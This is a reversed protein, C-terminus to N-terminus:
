LCTKSYDIHKDIKKESEGYLTIKQRYRIIQFSRLGTNKERHEKCIYKAWLKLKSKKGAVRSLYKKTLANLWLFNKYGPRLVSGQYGFDMIDKESGDSFQAPISYWQNHSYPYPSFMNWKQYIHLIRATHKLASIHKATHPFFHKFNWYFLSFLFILALIRSLVTRKSELDSKNQNNFGSSLKNITELFFIKKLTEIIKTFFSFKKGHFYNWFESPLFLLWGSICILPFLGLTMMTFLGLHFVVGFFVAVLKGLYGRSFLLFGGLLFIAGLLEGWISFGTMVKLLSPFNRLYAGISSAFSDLGLAYETATYDIKWSRGSKLFFTTFYILFFQFYLAFSWLSSYQFYDKIQGSLIERSAKLNGWPLFIGILSISRLVDDGGNLVSWNRDHFSIICIWIIISSIKTRVGFLFFLASLSYISILFYVFYVSGNLFLISTTWSHAMHSIFYGRQLVGEDSFFERAYPIRRLADYLYVLGFLIRGLLLSRQDLYFYAKLM